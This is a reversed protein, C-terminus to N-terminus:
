LRPSRTQIASPLLTPPATSGGDFTTLRRFCPMRAVRKLGDPIPCIFQQESTFSLRLDEVMVGIGGLLSFRRGAIRRIELVVRDNGIGISDDPDSHLSNRLRRPRPATTKLAATQLFALRITRPVPDGEPPFVLPAPTLKQPRARLHTPGLRQRSHGLPQFGDIRMGTFGDWPVPGHPIPNALDKKGEAAAM